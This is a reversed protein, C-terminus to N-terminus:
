KPNEHQIEEDINQKRLYNYLMYLKLAIHLFSLLLDNTDRTSINKICVTMKTLKDKCNLQYSKYYVHSPLTVTHFNIKLFRAMKIYLISRYGIGDGEIARSRIVSLGRVIM